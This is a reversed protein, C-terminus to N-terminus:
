EEVVSPILGHLQDIYDDTNEQDTILENDSTANHIVYKDQCEVQDYHDNSHLSRKTEVVKKPTNLRKQKSGNDRLFVLDKSVIITTEDNEIISPIVGAHIQTQYQLIKINQLYKIKEKNVFETYKM